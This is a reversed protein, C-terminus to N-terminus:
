PGPTRLVAGDGPFPLVAAQRGAEAAQGQARRRRLPQGRPQAVVTQLAPPLAPLVPRRQPLPGHGHPPGLIPEKPGPTRLAAGDGPFPLVAAKGAEAAQGQAGLACSREV